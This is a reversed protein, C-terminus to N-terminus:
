GWDEISSQISIQVFYLISYWLIPLKKIPVAGINKPAPNNNITSLTAYGETKISTASTLSIGSESHNANLLINVDSFRSDIQIGIM